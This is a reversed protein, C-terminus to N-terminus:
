LAAEAALKAPPKLVASLVAKCLAASRAEFCLALMPEGATGRARRIGTFRGKQVQEIRAGESTAAAKRSLVTQCFRKFATEREAAARYRVLAVKAPKGSLTCDALIVDTGKGLGLVNETSVYYLNNLDDHSHFYHVRTPRLAGQPLVSILDPLGGQTKVQDAFHRALGVAFNKFEPTHKQGAIKIFYRDQWCRLTGPQYLAGQCIPLKQGDLSTSFFGFAEGSTGLDFVEVIPEMGAAKYSAAYLQRFDFRMYPDAAGDMYDYITKSDYAHASGQIAGDGIRDPFMQIVDARCSLAALLIIVSLAARM